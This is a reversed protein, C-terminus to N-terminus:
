TNNEVAANLWRLTKKVLSAEVLHGCSHLAKRWQKAGLTAQQWGMPVVIREVMATPLYVFVEYFRQMMRGSNEEFQAYYKALTDVVLAYNPYEEDFGGDAGHAMLAACSALVADFLCGEEFASRRGETLALEAVALLWRRATALELGRGVTGFLGIAVRMEEGGVSDVGFERYYNEVIQRASESHLQQHALLRLSAHRIDPEGAAEVSMLEVTWFWNLPPLPRQLRVTLTRLAYRITHQDRQYTPKNTELQLARVIARLPSQVSNPLRNYNQPEVHGDALTYMHQRFTRLEIQIHHSILDSAAAAVAPEACLQLLHPWFDGTILPPPEDAEVAGATAATVNKAAPPAAIAAVPKVAAGGGIVTPKPQYAVPVPELSLTKYDFNQLAQLAAVKVDVHPSTAVMTWLTRLGADLCDEYNATPSVLHPVQGFFECQRSFFVYNLALLSTVNDIM